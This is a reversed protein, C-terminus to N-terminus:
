MGAPSGLWGALWSALPLYIIPLFISPLMNGVRIKEKPLGLMNLAIGVIITGGVASMETVVADGLYGGVLQALLTLGGEYILLPLASFAVGIGMAASFTVATVGDIVSKSILISYNQNLGAELSGNIAMAGVCFLVSSNVFGEVFRSNGGNKMLKQRLIEGLGDMHAEIDLREGFLTGAVMCLIVCLTDRTQIMSSIGIGLVCLGLACTLAAAFSTRIRSRFILGLLSGLLVLGINIVTAIM